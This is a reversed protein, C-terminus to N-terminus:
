KREENGIVLQEQVELESILLNCIWGHLSWLEGRANHGEVRNSYEWKYKGDLLTKLGNGIWRLDLAKVLLHLIPAPNSGNKALSHGASRAQLACVEARPECNLNM